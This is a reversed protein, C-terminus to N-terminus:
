GQTNILQKALERKVRKFGKKNRGKEGSQGANLHDQHQPRRMLIKNKTIRFRKSISKKTKGSM